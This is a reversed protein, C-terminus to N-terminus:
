NAEAKALEDLRMAEDNDITNNRQDFLAAAAKQYVVGLTNFIM